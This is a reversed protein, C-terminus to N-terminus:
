HIFQTQDKLYFTTLSQPRANFGVLNEIESEHDKLCQSVAVKGAADTNVANAIVGLAYDPSTTDTKLNTDNPTPLNDVASFIVNGKYSFQFEAMYHLSPPIDVTFIDYTGRQVQPVSIIQLQLDPQCQYTARVQTTASNTLEQYRANYAAQKNNSSLFIWGIALIVAIIGLGIFGRQEM